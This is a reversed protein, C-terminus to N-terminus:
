FSNTKFNVGFSLCLARSVNKLKSLSLPPVIDSSSALLAKRCQNENKCWFRHTLRDVKIKNRNM